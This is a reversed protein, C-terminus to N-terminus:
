CLRRSQYSSCYIVLAESRSIEGPGNFGVVLGDSQARESERRWPGESSKSFFHGWFSKVRASAVGTWNAQDRASSLAAVPHEM